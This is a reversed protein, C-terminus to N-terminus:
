QKLDLAWYDEGEDKTLFQIVWRASDECDRLLEHLVEGTVAAIPTESEVGLIRIQRTPKETPALVPYTKRLWCGQLLSYLKPPDGTPLSLARRHYNDLQDNFLLVFNLADYSNSRFVKFRFLNGGGVWSEEITGDIWKEAENSSCSVTLRTDPFFRGRQEVAQRIRKHAAQMWKPHNM